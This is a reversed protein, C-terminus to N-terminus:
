GTLVIPHGKQVIITHEFHAARSGDRTKYTYGDEALEILFDKGEFAIPELAIVDGEKLVDGEGEDGVNPIFPDEHVEKGVGHGGLEPPISFGEKKLFTEVTYGVDGTTAGDHAAIMAYDLAKKTAKILSAAKDDIKGVPVTVASDVIYGYHVLGCDISVIDGEKLVKSNENPIGHVIEDNISVCLAAPFPRQAGFPKYGLFAPKDGFSEITRVALDELDKTEVGPAIKDAVTDLVKKLNAGGEKLAIIQSEDEIRM